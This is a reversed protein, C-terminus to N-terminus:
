RLLFGFFVLFLIINAFSTIISGKKNHRGLGHLDRSSNSHKMEDNTPHRPKRSRGSVHTKIDSEALTANYSSSSNGWRCLNASSISLNSHVNASAFVIEFTALEINSLVGESSSCKP